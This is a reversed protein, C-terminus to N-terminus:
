ISEAAQYFTIHSHLVDDEAEDFTIIFKRQPFERHLKREWMKRLLRTLWIIQERTPDAPVCTFLDRVYVSNLQMEVERRNGQERALWMDILTGPSRSALVVCCDCEDFSPWFVAPFNMSQGVLGADYWQKLRLLDGTWESKADDPLRECLSDITTGKLDLVRIPRSKEM